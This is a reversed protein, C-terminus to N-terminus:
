YNRSTTYGVHTGHPAWIHLEPCIAWFLVYPIWTSGMHTTRPHNSNSNDMHAGRPIWTPCIPGPWGLYFGSPDWIHQEPTIVIRIAWIPGVHYGHPAYPGWGAWIFGLHTGYTRSGPTSAQIWNPGMCLTYTHTRASTDIQINTQKHTHARTRTYLHTHSTHIHTHTHASTHLTHKHTYLHTHTHVHTHTPTNHTHTQAHASTHM